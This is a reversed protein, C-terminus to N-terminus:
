TLLRLGNTIWNGTTWDSSGKMVQYQFSLKLITVPHWSELGITIYIGESVEAELLARADSAQELLRAEAAAELSTDIQWVFIETILALIVVLAGALFSPHRASHGITM